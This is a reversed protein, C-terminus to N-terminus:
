ICLEINKESEVVELLSPSSVYGQGNHKRSSSHVLEFKRKETLVSDLQPRREVEPGCGEDRLDESLM